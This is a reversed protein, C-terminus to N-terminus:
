VLDGDAEPLLRDPPHTSDWKEYYREFDLHAKLSVAEEVDMATVNGSRSTPEECQPCTMYAKDIPWNLACISCRLAGSSM